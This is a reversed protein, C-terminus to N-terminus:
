NPPQCLRCWRWRRSFVHRSLVLASKLPRIWVAKDTQQEKGTAERRKKRQINNQNKERRETKGDVHERMATTREIHIHSLFLSSFVFRIGLRSQFADRFPDADSWNPSLCIPSCSLMAVLRLYSVIGKWVFLFSMLPVAFSPRWRENDADQNRRKGEKM